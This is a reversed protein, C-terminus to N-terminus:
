RRVDAFQSMDDGYLARSLPGAQSRRDYREINERTEEDHM